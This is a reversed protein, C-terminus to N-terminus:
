DEAIGPLTEAADPATASAAKVGGASSTHKAVAGFFSTLAVPKAEAAKPAATRGKKASQKAGGDSPRKLSQGKSAVESSHQQEADPRELEAEAAPAAQSHDLTANLTGGM